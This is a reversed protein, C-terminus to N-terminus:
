IGNTQLRNWTSAPSSPQNSISTPTAPPAAASQSCTVTASTITVQPFDWIIHMQIQHSASKSRRWLPIPVRSTVCSPLIKRTVSDLNQLLRERLWDAGPSHGM